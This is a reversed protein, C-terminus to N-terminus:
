NFSTAPTLGTAEPRKLTLMPHRSRVAHIWEIGAREKSRWSKLITKHNTMAYNYVNQVGSLFMKRQMLLFVKLDTIDHFVFKDKNACRTNEKDHRDLRDM